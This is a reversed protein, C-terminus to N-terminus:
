TLKRVIKGLFIVILNIGLPILFLSALQTWWNANEIVFRVFSEWLELGALQFLVAVSLLVAVVIGTGELDKKSSFQTNTIQFVLYLIIGIQWWNLSTNRLYWSLSILLLQGVIFPAMGVLSQRVPDSAQIYAEGAVVRDEEVRPIVSLGFTKLGLLTAVLIHSVEHILTGPLFLLIYVWVTLNKSRFLCLLIYGVSTEVWISTLYILAMILVLILFEGM